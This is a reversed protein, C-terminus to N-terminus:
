LGEGVPMNVWSKGSALICAGGGAHTKMITWTGKKSVYIEVMTVPSSLGMAFRVEKFRGELVKVMIDRKGCQAAHSATAFILVLLFVCLGALIKYIM